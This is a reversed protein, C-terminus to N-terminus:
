SDRSIHRFHSRLITTTTAAFLRVGLACRRCMRFSVRFVRRDSALLYVTFETHDESKSHRQM